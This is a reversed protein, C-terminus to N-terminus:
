RVELLEPNEWKNGIVKFAREAGGLSCFRGTLDIYGFCGKNFTVVRRYSATRTGKFQLADGDYIEKSDYDHLDIFQGVTKPDIEVRQMERPMGWDALTPFVIWHKDPQQLRPQGTKLPYPMPGYEIYYHGYFWTKGDEISRGRFKIKRM